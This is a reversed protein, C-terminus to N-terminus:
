DNEAETWKKMQNNFNSKNGMLKKACCMAFGKEPDFQENNQVKVVTKTSDDWIVITAPNNFIVKKPTRVDILVIDNMAYAVIDLDTRVITGNNKLITSVGINIDKGSIQEIDDTLKGIERRTCMGNISFEIPNQDSCLNSFYVNDIRM